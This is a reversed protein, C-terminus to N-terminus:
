TDSPHREIFAPPREQLQTIAPAGTYLKRRRVVVALVLLSVLGIVGATTAYLFTSAFAVEYWAAVAAIAACAGLWVSVKSRATSSSTEM